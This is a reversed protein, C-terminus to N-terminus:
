SLVSSHEVKNWLSNIERYLSSYYHDNLEFTRILSELIPVRVDQGQKSNVSSFPNAAFYFPQESGDKDIEIIKFENINSNISISIRCPPLANGGFVAEWGIPQNSISEELISSSVTKYGLSALVAIIHIGYFRLVGGGLSHYRKWTEKSSAMHHAEFNWVIKVTNASNGVLNRLFPYWDSYIFTYGVRIKKSKFVENDFLQIAADVNPAVPKEIVIKKINDLSLIKQVLEIQAQPPTAIVVGSSKLLASEVSHEWQIQEDFQRLEERFAITKRYIEPLIIGRGYVNFLAPLYGYLGFGGGVITFM